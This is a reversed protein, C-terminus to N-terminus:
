RLKRGWRATSAARGKEPTNGKAQARNGKAFGPPPLPEIHTKEEFLYATSVRQDRATTSLSDGVSLLRCTVDAGETDNRDVVIELGAKILSANVIAQSGKGGAKSLDALMSQLRDVLAESAKGPAKSAPQRSLREAVADREERVADIAKSLEPVLGAPVVLLRATGEHLKAELAELQKRLAPGQSATAQARGELLKAIHKRLRAVAAPSGLHRQVIENVVALLKDERLRRGSCRGPKKTSVGNSCKYYLNKGSHRDGHYRRGCNGCVILGSLTHVTGRPRTAIRREAILEQVRAFAEDSVLEPVIDPAKNSIPKAAKVEQGPRLSVIGEATRRSYKGTARRGYVIRGTYVPNRAISRVGDGEWYPQGRPTPVKDANLGEAIRAFSMDPELYEAFIRRVITAEAENVVLRSFRRRGVLRTDRTYGYNKPTGPYGEAAEAKAAQGRTVNRSLDRLFQHKAEQQVAFTVRGSFTELDIEGQALTEIAIGNKRLPALVAGSTMSDHRGIRDQDWALLRSFTKGSSDELMQRFGARKEFNDGSIGEDKYVAVVRYAKRECLERLAKEQQPISAEQRDSSM